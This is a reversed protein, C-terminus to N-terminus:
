ADVSNFTPISVVQIAVDFDGSALICMGQQLTELSFIHKGRQVESINSIRRITDEPTCSMTLEEYPMPLVISFRSTTSYYFTKNADLLSIAAEGRQAIVVVITPIINTENTKVGTVEIIDGIKIDALTIEEGGIYTFITDPALALTIEEGTEPYFLVTKASTSISQVFGIMRVESIDFDGGRGELFFLM